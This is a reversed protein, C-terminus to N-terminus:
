CETDQVGVLGGNGPSLRRKLETNFIMNNWDIIAKDFGNRLNGEGRTSDNLNASEDQQLLVAKL